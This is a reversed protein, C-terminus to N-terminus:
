ACAAGLATVSARSQRPLNRAGAVRHLSEQFLKESVTEKIFFAAPTHSEGSALREQLSVEQPFEQGPEFAFFDRHRQIGTSKRGFFNKQFDSKLARQNKKVQFHDRGLEMELIRAAGILENQLIKLAEGSSRIRGPEPQPNGNDGPHIIRFDFKFGQESLYFREAANLLNM